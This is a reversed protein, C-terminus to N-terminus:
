GKLKGITICEIMAKYSCREDIPPAFDSHSHSQTHSTKRCQNKKVSLSVSVRLANM